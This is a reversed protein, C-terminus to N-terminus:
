HITYQPRSPTSTTLNATTNMLRESLTMFIDAVLRWSCGSGDVSPLISAHKLAAYAM